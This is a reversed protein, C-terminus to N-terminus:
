NRQEKRLWEEAWWQTSPTVAKNGEAKLDGIVWINSEGVRRLLLTAREGTTVSYLYCDGAVIEDVFLSACNNQQHGETVVDWYTQLPTIVGPLGRLPPPPFPAFHPEEEVLRKRLREEVRALKEADLQGYPWERGPTEIETLWAVTEVCWTIPTADYPSKTSAILLHSNVLRPPMSLLAVTDRSIQRLHSLTRLHPHGQRIICALNELTEERCHLLPLKKLLRVNSPKSPLGVHGLMQRWTLDLARAYFASRDECNSACSRAILLALAPCQRILEAAREPSAAAMELLEWGNTPATRAIELMSKPIRSTFPWLRDGPQACLIERTLALTRQPTFRLYPWARIRTYGDLISGDSTISIGGDFTFPEDSM